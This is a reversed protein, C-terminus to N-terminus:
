ISNLMSDGSIELVLFALLGFAVWHDYAAIYRLMTTGALWGLVPTLFQFLGFHFALRFTPRPGSTREQTGM